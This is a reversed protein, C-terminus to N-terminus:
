KGTLPGPEVALLLKRLLSELDTREAMTLGAVLAHEVDAHRAMADDVVARGAATLEVLSGRRDEPNPRRTVLGKGVLRDIAATMGGSTMMRQRALETPTLGGPEGARRLAVLLSYDGGVFGLPHFADDYAAQFLSALRVVRGTVAKASPDLEPRERRWQEIIADVADTEPM